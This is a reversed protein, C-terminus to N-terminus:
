QLICGAISGQDLAIKLVFHLRCFHQSFQRTDQTGPARNDELQRVVSAPISPHSPFLPASKPKGVMHIVKRWVGQPGHESLLSELNDFECEKVPKPGIVVHPTDSPLLFV